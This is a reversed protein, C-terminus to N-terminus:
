ISTVTQRATIIPVLFALLFLRGIHCAAVFGPNAGLVAGMALMTELGGPSFAVVVHAAPMDILYAVPLAILCAVLVTILTVALGGALTATLQGRTVGSFRTGILTGMIMLCPMSIVSPVSGSTANVMQSLATVGMGAILFAAPVKLRALALGTVVGIAFLLGVQWLPMPDGASLLTADLSFGLAM